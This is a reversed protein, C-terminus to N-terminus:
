ALPINSVSMGKSLCGTLIMHHPATKVAARDAWNLLNRTHTWEFRRLHLLSRAHARQASVDPSTPLSHSHMSLSHSVAGVGTSIHMCTCVPHPMSRRALFVCCLAEAASASPSAYAAEKRRSADAAV